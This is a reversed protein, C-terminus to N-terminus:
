SVYPIQLTFRSGIGVQSSVEIHGGHARAIHNVISLGLGTGGLDRSRAKDIRYFREFIRDLQSNPIGFGQDIVSITLAKGEIQTEVTVKKGPESYKIGNTILNVVAQEILNPNMRAKLGPVSKIEITTEKNQAVMECTQRAGELLRDLSVRQTDLQGTGELQDLKALETLDTIIEMLRLTQRHIIQSFKESQEPPVGDILMESYGQISTIPTRLEHSVNAVFDTRVSELHRLRTVDTLVILVGIIKGAMNKLPTARYELIRSAEQKLFMDGRVYNKERGVREAVSILESDPFIQHLNERLLKKISTLGMLDKAAKNMNLINLDPDLALVGETMSALVAKLENSQIVLNRIKDDIEHAMRNLSNSLSDIEFIHSAPLHQKLDGTAFRLAGEELEELPQTMWKSFAFAILLLVVIGPLAYRNFFKQGFFDASIKKEFLKLAIRYSQGRHKLTYLSLYRESGLSVLTDQPFEIFFDSSLNSKSSESLEPCFFPSSPLQVQWPVSSQFACIDVSDTQLYKELKLQHIETKQALLHEHYEIMRLDFVSHFYLAGFILAIAVLILIAPFLVWILRFRGM